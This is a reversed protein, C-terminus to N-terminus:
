ATPPWVECRLKADEVPVVFRSKSRACEMSLLKELLPKLPWRQPTLLAREAARLGVNGASGWCLVAGSPDAITVITNNFTSQIYAVGNAVQRKEKTKGKTAQKRAM